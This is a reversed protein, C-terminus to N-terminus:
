CLGGKWYKKTLGCFKLMFTKKNLINLFLKMGELM